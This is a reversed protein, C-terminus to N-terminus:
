HKIINQIFVSASVRIVEFCAPTSFLTWWMDACSIDVVHLEYSSIPVQWTLVFVVNSPVSQHHINQIFVIASVRIVEFCVPSSFLTCWIMDACFIDVIHLEYTSIPVQWTLVFVGNSPHVKSTCTAYCEVASEFSLGLWCYWGSLSCLSTLQISKFERIWNLLVHLFTQKRVKCPWSQVTSILLWVTLTVVYESVPHLMVQINLTAALNVPVMQVIMHFDAKVSMGWICGPRIDGRSKSKQVM